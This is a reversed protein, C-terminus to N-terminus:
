VISVWLTQWLETSADAGVMRDVHTRIGCVVDVSIEILIQMTIHIEILIQMTIHIEILIQITIHVVRFDAFTSLSQGM